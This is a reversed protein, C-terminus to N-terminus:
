REGSSADVREKLWAVVDNLPQEAIPQFNDQERAPTEGLSHGLTPYMKLTVDSSGALALSAALVSAGRPPVNADREGQLILVPAHLSGARDGLTSLALEASYMHLNTM